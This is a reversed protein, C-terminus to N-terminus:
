HMESFTDFADKKLHGFTKVQEATNNRLSWNLIVIIKNLSKVDESVIAFPLHM